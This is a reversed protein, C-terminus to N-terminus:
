AVPVPWFLKFGVVVLIVLVIFIIVQAPSLVFKSPYEADYRVLGGFPGPMSIGENAM